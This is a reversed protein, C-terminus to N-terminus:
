RGTKKYSAATSDIAKSMDSTFGKFSQFMNFKKAGTDGGGGTSAGLSPATPRALGGGGSAAAASSAAASEATWEMGAARM